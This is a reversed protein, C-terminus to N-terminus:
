STARKPSAKKAAKPATKTVAKRPESREEVDDDSAKADEVGEDKVPVALGNGCLDMAETGPLDVVEGPAPWEVGNRTGTITTKLRVKM